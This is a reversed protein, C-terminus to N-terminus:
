SWHTPWHWASKVVSVDHLCSFMKRSKLVSVCSRFVFLFKSSVYLLLLREISYYVVARESESRGVAAIAIRVRRLVRRWGELCRARRLSKRDRPDWMHEREAQLLDSLLVSSGLSTPFSSITM